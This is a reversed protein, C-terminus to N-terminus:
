LMEFAVEDIKSTIDFLHWGLMREVMGTTAPASSWEALELLHRPPLDLGIPPDVRTYRLLPVQNGCGVMGGWVSILRRSTQGAPTDLVLGRRSIDIQSGPSLAIVQPKVGFIGCSALIWEEESQDTSLASCHLRHLGEAEATAARDNTDHMARDWSALLLLACGQIQDREIGRGEIYRLGLERAATYVPLSPNPSEYVSRHLNAVQALETEAPQGGDQAAAFVALLALISLIPFM